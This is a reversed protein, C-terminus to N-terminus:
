NFCKVTAPRSKVNELGVLKQIHGVPSVFDEGSLVGGQVSFILSSPVQNPQHHVFGSVTCYEVLGCTPSLTGMDQSSPM